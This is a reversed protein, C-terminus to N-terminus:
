FKLKYTLITLLQLFLQILKKPNRNIELIMNFVYICQTVLIYCFVFILMKLVGLHQCFTQSFKLWCRLQCFTKLVGLHQCLTQSFKLWCKLQCFTKLVGLHQCLTQSFKLWCNLQCFSCCRMRGAPPDVQYQFRFTQEHSSLDLSAANESHIFSSSMHVRPCRNQRNVTGKVGSGWHSPFNRLLNEFTICVYRFLSLHRM